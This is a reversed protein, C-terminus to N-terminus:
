FCGPEDDRIIGQLRNADHDECGEIEVFVDELGQPNSCAAKEYLVGLRGLEDV